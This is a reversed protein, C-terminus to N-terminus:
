LERKLNRYLSLAIFAGWITGFIWLFPMTADVLEQNHSYIGYYYVLLSVAFVFALLSHTKLSIGM